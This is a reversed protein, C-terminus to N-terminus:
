LAVSNHILSVTRLTATSAQLLLLESSLLPTIVAKAVNITIAIIPITIEM